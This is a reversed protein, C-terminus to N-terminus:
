PLKGAAPWRGNGRTCRVEVEAGMMRQAFALITERMMDPSTSALTGEFRAGSVPMIDGVAVENQKTESRACRFIV